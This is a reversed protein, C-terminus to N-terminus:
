CSAEGKRMPRLAFPDAHPLYHRTSPCKSEDESLSVVDIYGCFYRTSEVTLFRGPAWRSLLVDGPQLQDARKVHEGALVAVADNPDDHRYITTTM